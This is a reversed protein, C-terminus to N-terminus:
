AKRAREVSRGAQGRGACSRAGVVVEGPRGAMGWRGSCREQAPRAARADGPGASRPLVGTDAPCRAGHAGRSLEGPWEWWFQTVEDCVDRVPRFAGADSLNANNAYGRSLFAGFGGSAGGAGGHYANDWAAGESWSSLPTRWTPPQCSGRFRGVPPNTAHRGNLGSSTPACSVFNLAARTVADDEGTPGAPCIACGPDPSPATRWEARVLFACRSRKGQALLRPPTTPHVCCGASIGNLRLFM